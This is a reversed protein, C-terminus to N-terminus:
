QKIVQYVKRNHNIYLEVFYIGSKAFSLDISIARSKQANSTKYIIRGSIDVVRIEKESLHDLNDIFLKDYFPNPYVSPQKVPEESSQVIKIVQNNCTPTTSTSSCYISFMRDKSVLVLNDGDKNVFYDGDLNDIGSNVITIDPNPQNFTQVVGGLLSVYWNPVGNNTNLSFQYLGNNQLDWNITFQTVNNLDPGGNGLVTLYEYQKNVSPLPSISPTEFDCNTTGDSVVITKSVLDSKGSSNTVVLTIEYTGPQNYVITEQVQNGQLGNRFDWDYDLVGSVPDISGSADVTIELPAIGSEASVTFSAVPSGDTVTINLQATHQKSGDSVTLQVEYVGETLFQKNVIKDTSTTGDDFDWLYTLIDGDQDISGSGDFTITVPAVGQVDSASILAVPTTNSDEVTITTNKTSSLEGDSVTLTVLYSGPEDFSIQPNIDASVQDNGFEWFFSLTDGDIDTSSSGDFNITLPAIGSSIDNTFDAVPRSNGGLTPEIGWVLEGKYYATIRVNPKLTELNPNYSFDNSQNNVLYGNHFMVTKIEGSASKAPLSGGTFSLEVYKTGLDDGFSGSVGSVQSYDIRFNMSTNHEPTYWYRIKFDEYQVAEDSGNVLQYVPRIESVNSSASNDRYNIRFPTVPMDAIAEDVTFNVTAPEGVLTGQEDILTLSVAHEGNSLGSISIDEENFVEGLVVGDLAYQIGKGNPSVDWKYTSFVIDFDPGVLGGAVPADIIATPGSPLPENTVIVTIEDMLDTISNDSREMQLLLTHSGESLATGDTHIGDTTILGRDNGDIKFRLKYQDSPLSWGETNFNITLPANVLEGELPSTFFIDPLPYIQTDVDGGHLAWIVAADFLKWGQDTLLHTFQDRLPFAVRRSAISGGAEFGFLVPKDEAEAIVIAGTGPNGYPLPQAIKYLSASLGLNAAMPHNSDTFALESIAGETFGVSSGLGLKSYMFTDWTFVPVKAAQIDNGLVGPDVTSSVLVLDYANAMQPSTVEDDSFPTIIFGLNQELRSKIRQDDTNLKQKDGVVLMAKIAKKYTVEIEPTISATNSNNYFVKAQITYSKWLLPEWSGEFPASSATAIKNHDVFYEIKTIDEITTSVSLKVPESKDLIQKHEPTAMELQQTSLNSAEENDIQLMYAELKALDKNSLAVTKGHANNENYTTLVERLTAARGDHLYPATAWVGRLTPVDIGLLEKKLRSGSSTAITGVDHLKGSQSDTFSNGGHCSICELDFFLQKGAIGEATLNGNSTRYPSKEFDNLSTIYAALADLDESKGAKADGLSLATTGINFSDDTMFGQGNFHFRIDNEFDQIEDFNASWHVRGHGTGSRGKLTITNRLGEGRDTFDWVRGDQTGDIHCSACSVYGDTGMRLDSADYFIQKGKLVEQSLSENAVTVITTLEEITVEGATIMKTADFVTVSRDMFNKVFIKNSVPDVVVGQPAKGVNAKLLELGTKPDIIVIRNNGQMTTILHNGTPTYTVASPQGHNDIDLRKAIRESNNKLDLSSIATRVINDFTLINGDKSIGRLINDKKAVTWANKNEPHIAIGSVYNPLGRGANGNDISFDDIPLVIPSQLSFNNLNIKWVQGETDESIFRTILLFEGDGSVALARPTSGVKLNNVMTKTTVSFEVVSGSGFLSLFIREGDPSSVIGYPSDGYNLQITDLKIGEKNVLYVTDDDRCSIWAVGNKDIAVSVPDKGVSVERIVTMTDADMMTVSDNDPNVTWVIRSNVDVAIPSSQTPLTDPLTNVVSVSTTGVVFGGNNDTVQVQVLYNGPEAFTHTVRNEIFDTQDSGDGFNWRYKLTNNDPDTALATLVVESGTMVPSPVNLEIDSVVPSQNSADGGTTFYFTYEDMGNGVADKIGDQVFKVEYTTNALLPQKPAYNIVHYSTSTVDGEIVDGGLPRVQITQDNLTIDDLIENIVFGITSTVPQNAAGNVPFHHSVYPGKTDLEDQHSFISTKGDGSAVLIHGIPMWMNDIFQLGEDDAPPFFEQEIEMTEFNYKVGRDFRGTFGYEDKFIMYRGLTIDDSSLSFAHKVNTPDSIDFATMTNEGENGSMYVFYNRWVQFGTSYQEHPVDGGFAGLFKINEPDGFDFVSIAGSQPAYFVYNGMRVVIDPLTVSQPINGVQAGSRMDYVRNGDITHPFTELNDYHPQGEAVTYLVDSNTIPKRDLMNSLDLYKYGTGAVEPVSYERYYLDGMKWWRHGNNGAGDFQIKKPTTPKSIDWIGTGEQGAIMLYNRHYTNIRDGEPFNALFTGAPWTQITLEPGETGDYGEIVRIAVLSLSGIAVILVLSTKSIKNFVTRWIHNYTRSKM